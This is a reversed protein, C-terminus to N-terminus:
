KDLGTNDLITFAEPHMNADGEVKLKCSLEKEWYKVEGTTFWEKLWPSTLILISKTSCSKILMTRLRRKIDLVMTERAQVRGVVKCISLLYYLVASKM